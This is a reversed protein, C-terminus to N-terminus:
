LLGPASAHYLRLGSGGGRAPPPGARRGVLRARVRRPQPLLRDKTSITEHFGYNAEMFVESFDFANNSPAFNYAHVVSNVVMYDDIMRAVGQENSSESGSATISIVVAVVLVAGTIVPSWQPAVGVINPGREPPSSSRASCPAWRVAPAAPSRRAASSRPPSPPSSWATAATPVGSTSRVRRDHGGRRRVGPCCSCREKTRDTPRREHHGRARQRWRTVHRGFTTYKAIVFEIATVAARHSPRRSGALEDRGPRSPRTRSLSPSAAPTSWRCATASPRCARPSWSLPVRLWTFVGGNFFGM